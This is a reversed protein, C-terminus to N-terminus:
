TRASVKRTRGFPTPTRASKHQVSPAHTKVTPHPPECDNAKVISPRGCPTATISLRTDMSVRCATGSRAWLANSVGHDAAISEMGSRIKRAYPFWQRPAPVATASRALRVDRPATGPRASREQCTCLLNRSRGQNRSASLTSCLQSSDGNRLRPLVARSEQSQNM